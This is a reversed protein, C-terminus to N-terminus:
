WSPIFLNPHDYRISLGGDSGWSTAAISTGPLAPGLNSGVTWGDANNDYCYEQISNDEGQAYVRVVTKGGPLVAAIGSYPAVSFGAEGLGGTYWEGGDDTDAEQVTNDEALYYVRIVELDLAAGAAAIPSDPKATAIVDKKTGGAWSSDVDYRAERIGGDKATMYVRINANYCVAALSTPLVINAIDSTSLSEQDQDLHITLHIRHHYIIPPEHRVLSFCSTQPHNLM